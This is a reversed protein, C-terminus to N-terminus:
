PTSPAEFKEENVTRAIVETEAPVELNKGRIWPVLYLAQMTKDQGTMSLQSRLKIQRPGVMVFRASIILEGAKGLGRARDAHIVEGTAISGAPIVVTTGVNINDTVELDFQQGRTHTGSSVTSLFRLPIAAGAPLSIASAVPAAAAAAPAPPTEPGDAVQARAVQPASASVAILCLLLSVRCIRM